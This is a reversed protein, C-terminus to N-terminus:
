LDLYLIYWKGEIMVLMIEINSENDMEIEMGKDIDIINNTEDFVWDQLEKLEEQSDHTKYDSIRNEMPLDEEEFYDITNLIMNTNWDDGFGEYIFDSLIDKDKENIADCCIELVDSYTLNPSNSNKNCASLMGILLFVALILAFHGKNKKMSKGGLFYFLAGVSTLAGFFAFGSQRWVFKFLILADRGYGKLPIQAKVM